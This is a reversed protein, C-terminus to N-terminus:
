AQVGGKKWIKGIYYGMPNTIDVVNKPFTENIKLKERIFFFRWREAVARVGILKGCIFYWKNIHSAISLDRFTILLVKFTIKCLLFFGGM